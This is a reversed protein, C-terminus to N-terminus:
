LCHFQILLTLLGEFIFPLSFTADCTSEALICFLYCSYRQFWKMGTVSPFMVDRVAHGMLLVSSLSNRGATHM